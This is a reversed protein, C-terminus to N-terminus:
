FQLITALLLSIAFLEDAIVDEEECVNKRKIENLEIQIPDLNLQVVSFVILKDM